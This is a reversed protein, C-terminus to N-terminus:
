MVTVGTHNWNGARFGLFNTTVVTKPTANANLILYAM